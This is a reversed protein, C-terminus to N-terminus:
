FGDEESSESNFVALLFEVVVKRIPILHLAGHM